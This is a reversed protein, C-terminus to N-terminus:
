AGFHKRDTADLVSEGKLDALSRVGMLSTLENHQVPSLPKTLIDAIMLKTPCYVLKIDGRDLHDRLYHVRVDMHKVRQHQIPNLAIAITSQNDQMVTISEKLMINLEALFQKLWITERVIESLSYYEAETSSQAVVSQKKSYWTVVGGCLLMLYGSRSKRGVEEAYSADAYSVPMFEPEILYNPNNTFLTLPLKSRQYL